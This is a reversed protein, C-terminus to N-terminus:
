VDLQSDVQNEVKDLLNKYMLRIGNSNSVRNIQDPSRWHNLRAKISRLILQAEYESITITVVKEEM